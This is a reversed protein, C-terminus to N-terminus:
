TTLANRRTINSTASRRRAQTYPCSSKKQGQGTLQIPAYTVKRVTRWIAGRQRTLSLILEQAQKAVGREIRIGYKRNQPGKKKRKPEESETNPLLVHLIEGKGPRGEPSTIRGTRKKSRITIEAEEQPTTKAANKDV